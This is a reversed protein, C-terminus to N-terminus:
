LLSLKTLPTIIHFYCYVKGEDDDPGAEILRAVAARKRITEQATQYVHIRSERMALSLNHPYIM